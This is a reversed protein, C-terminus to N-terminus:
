MPKRLKQRGARTGILAFLYLKELLVGSKAGEKPM